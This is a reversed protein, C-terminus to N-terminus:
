FQFEVWKAAILGPVSGLAREPLGADRLAPAPLSALIAEYPFSRNGNKKWFIDM